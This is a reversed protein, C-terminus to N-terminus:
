GVLQEEPLPPTPATSLVCRMTAEIVEPGRPLRFTERRYGPTDLFTVGPTIAALDLTAHLRRVDLTEIRPNRRLPRFQVVQFAGPAFRLYHSRGLLSLVFYLGYAVLVVTLLVANFLLARQWYGSRLIDVILMYLMAGVPVLVAMSWLPPHPARVVVPAFSSGPNPPVPPPVKRYYVYLRRHRPLRSRLLADWTDVRAPVRRWVASVLLCYRHVHVGAADWRQEKILRDIAVADRRAQARYRLWRPLSQLTVYTLYTLAILEYRLLIEGGSTAQRGFPWLPASEAHNWLMTGGTVPIAVLWALLARTLSARPRRTHPIWWIAVPGHYTVAPAPRPTPSLNASNEDM